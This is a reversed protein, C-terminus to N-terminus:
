KKKAKRRAAKVAAQKEGFPIKNRVVIAEGGMKEIKDKAMKSFRNASIKLKLTLEGDGLVKLEDFIGKVIGRGRLAEITVEDGSVFLQELDGVNIVAVAPAFINTFGRKPVRRVLPMSGGQFISLAKYGHNSKSGKHGRTSTKGRGSGPGRGIRRRRKHKEIGTNVEHLNM